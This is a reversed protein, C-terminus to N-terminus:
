IMILYAHMQMLCLVPARYDGSGVIVVVDSADRLM